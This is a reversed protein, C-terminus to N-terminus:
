ALGACTRPSRAAGCQSDPPPPSPPNPHPLLPFFPAPIRAPPSLAVCQVEVACAGSRLRPPHLHRGPSAGPLAPLSRAPAAAPATAQRRRQRRRRRRSLLFLRRRRRGRGSTEAGRLKCSGCFLAARVGGERLSLLVPPEHCLGAELRGTRRHCGRRWRRRRRRGRRQQLQQRRWRRGRAGGRRHGGGGGQAGKRRARQQGGEAAVPGGDRNAEAGHGGGGPAARAAGCARARARRLALRVAGPVGHQPMLPLWFFHASREVAGAAPGCPVGRSVRAQLAAGRRLAGREAGGCLLHRM